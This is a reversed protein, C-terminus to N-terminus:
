PAHPAHELRFLSFDRAWPACEQNRIARAWWTRHQFTFNYKLTIESERVLCIDPKGKNAHPTLMSYVNLFCDFAIFFVYAGGVSNVIVPLCVIAM